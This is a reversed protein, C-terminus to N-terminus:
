DNLITSKAERLLVMQKRCIPKKRFSVSTDMTPNAM